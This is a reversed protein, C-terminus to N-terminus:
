EEELSLFDAHIVATERQEDYEIFSYKALFRFFIKVKEVPVNVISAMEIVSVPHPHREELIRLMENMSTEKSKNDNDILKLSM